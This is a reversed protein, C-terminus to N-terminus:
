ATGWWALVAEKLIAEKAVREEHTVFRSLNLLYLPFTVTKVEGPHLL